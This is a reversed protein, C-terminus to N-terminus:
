RRTHSSPCPPSTPALLLCPAQHLLRTAEGMQATTLTGAASGGAIGEAVAEVTGGVVVGVIDEVVAGVTNEAVVEATSEAVAEATSGVAVGAIGEAIDEVIGVAAGVIGEGSRLIGTSRDRRHGNSPNLFSIQLQM